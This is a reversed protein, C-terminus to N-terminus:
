CRTTRSAAPRPTSTWSAAACASMTTRRRRASRRRPSRISRCAPPPSCRTRRARSRARRLFEPGRRAACRDDRRPRRRAPTPREERADRRRRVCLGVLRHRPPKPRTSISRRRARGHDDFLRALRRDDRPAAAVLTEFELAAPMVFGDNYDTHEGIVNVRGPSRSVRPERGYRLAFAKAVDRALVSM